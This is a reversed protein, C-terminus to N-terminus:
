PNYSNWQEADSTAEIDAEVHSSAKSEIDIASVSSALALIALAFKKM